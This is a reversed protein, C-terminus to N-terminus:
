QMQQQDQLILLVSKNEALEIELEKNNQREKEVKSEYM